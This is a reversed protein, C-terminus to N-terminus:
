HQQHRPDSIHQASQPIRAASASIPVEM